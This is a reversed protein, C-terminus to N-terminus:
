NVFFHLRRLSVEAVNKLATVMKEPHIASLVFILSVVHFRVGTELKESIAGPRSLDAQFVAGFQEEDYLENKKFIDLAVPSFDCAYYTFPLGLKVLPWIFNGVGCGAELLNLRRNGHEPSNSMMRMQPLRLLEEFERTTWHRDRFFKDLNRKYFLDWNKKADIELKTQRFPSVLQRDSLLKAIEDQTLQRAEHAFSAASAPPDKNQTTTTSPPVLSESSM